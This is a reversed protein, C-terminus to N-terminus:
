HILFLSYIKECKRRRRRMAWILIIELINSVASVEGDEVKAEIGNTINTKKRLTADVGGNRDEMASVKTSRKPASIFPMM